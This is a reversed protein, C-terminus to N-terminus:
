ENAGSALKLLQAHIQLAGDIPPPAVEDFHSEAEHQLESLEHLEVGTLEAHVSKDILECRRRDKEESWSASDDQSITILTISNLKCLEAFREKRRYDNGEPRRHLRVGRLPASDVTAIM